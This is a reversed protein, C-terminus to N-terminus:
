TGPLATEPGQLGADECGRVGFHRNVLHITKRARGAPSFPGFYQSGDREVKRSIYIGPFEERM